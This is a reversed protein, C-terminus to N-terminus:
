GENQIIPVSGWLEATEDAVTYCRWQRPPLKALFGKDGTMEVMTKRDDDLNLSMGVIMDSESFCFRSVWKPRQMLGLFTQDRERGRTLWATLGNGPRGHDHLYYLEDACIGINDYNEHVHQIVSDQFESSMEDSAFNLVTFRNELAKELKTPNFRTLVQLDPLTKYGATHKPNLILWHQRSRRAMLYAAVTTKGSGTRGAIVTRTGPELAPLAM